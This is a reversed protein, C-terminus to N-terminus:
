HGQLWRKASFWADRVAANIRARMGEVDLLWMVTLPVGAGVVVIFAATLVIGFLGGVEYVNYALIAMVAVLATVALTRKTTDSM